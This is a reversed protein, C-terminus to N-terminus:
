GPGERQVSLGLQSLIELLLVLGGLLGQSAGLFFCVIGAWAM